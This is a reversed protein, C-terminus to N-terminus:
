YIVNVKKAEPAPSIYLCYFSHSKENSQVLEPTALHVSDETDASGLNAGAIGFHSVPQSCLPLSVFISIFVDKFM